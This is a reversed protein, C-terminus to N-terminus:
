CAAKEKQPWAGFCYAHKPCIPAKDTRPRSPTDWSGGNTTWLHAWGSARLSAGNETDLIYTLGRRYGKDIAVRRCAAYLVSCANPEGTTCLRTVEMTLGDDLARAVPRGVIAVGVLNGESDHAGHWWLGGTPVNHHRHHQKIFGFAVDRTVPRLEVSGARRPPWNDGAPAGPEWVTGGNGDPWPHFPRSDM